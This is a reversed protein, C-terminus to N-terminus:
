ISPWGSLYPDHNDADLRARCYSALSSQDHM